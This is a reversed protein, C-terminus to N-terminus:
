QGPEAIRVPAPWDAARDQRIMLGAVLVAPIVLAFVLWLAGHGRRPPEHRRVPNYWGVELVAWRWLVLPWLLVVGPLLLPRFVWSGRANPEVRGMGVTLFIAAVGLGALAWYEALMVITAATTM